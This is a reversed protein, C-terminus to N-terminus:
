ASQGAWVNIWGPVSTESGRCPAKTVTSGQERQLILRKVPLTSTPLFELGERIIADKFAERETKVRLNNLNSPNSHSAPKHVPEELASRETFHPQHHVEETINKSPRGKKRPPDVRPLSSPM